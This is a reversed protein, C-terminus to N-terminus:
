SHIVNNEDACTFTFRYSIYYERPEQTMELCTFYCNRSGWIPHVLEGAGPREALEILKKFQNYANAGYFAGSGSIVRKLESMGSFVYEGDAKITYCPTRTSKEVYTTPNYPWTYDKYRLKDM